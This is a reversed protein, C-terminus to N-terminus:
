LATCARRRPWNSGLTEQARPLFRFRRSISKGSRFLIGSRFMQPYIPPLSPMNFDFLATDQFRVELDRLRSFRELSHRVSFDHTIMLFSQVCGSSPHLRGGSRASAGVTERGRAGRAWLAISGAYLNVLSDGRPWRSFLMPKKSVGTPRIL